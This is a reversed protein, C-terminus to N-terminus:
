RAEGRLPAGRGQDLLRGISLLSLEWERSPIFPAKKYIVELFCSERYLDRARARTRAVGMYAGM